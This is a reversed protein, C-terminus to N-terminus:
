ASSSRPRRHLRARRGVQLNWGLKLVCVGGIAWIDWIDRIDGVCRVGHFGLGCSNSEVPNAAGAASPCARHCFLELPQGARHQDDEDQAHHHQRQRRKQEVQQEGEVDRDGIMTSSTLM